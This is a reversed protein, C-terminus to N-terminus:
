RHPARFPFDFYQNNYTEHGIIERGLVATVNRKLAFCLTNGSMELEMLAAFGPRLLM